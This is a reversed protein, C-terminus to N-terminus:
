FFDKRLQLGFYRDADRPVAIAVFGTGTAMASVYSKDLLNKGILAVRWGNDFNLGVSANLIGYAGQVTSPSQPLSYQESTQWFYNAYLELQPGIALPHRYDVSVNAKFAPAYPLRTGNVNCNAQAGSPCQFTGVRADTFALGGNLTLGTIPRAGLDLEIGKTSVTGANILRTVVQGAVTDFFNAQYNQYHVDYLALNATWRRDPTQAKVGIEYSNSEEPKLATTDRQQMNFFTNIAPGKYGHAYTAYLLVNETLDFQLGTRGSLGNDSTSGSSGFTPNVGPIAIPATSVRSFDYSIEDHTVRAGLIARLRPTFHFTGEGYASLNNTMTDFQATGKNATVSSCPTLGPAVSPLTSSTCTGVNRTYAEDTQGHLAYLGAVYDFFGGKPSTLRLEQSLQTFGLTGVDNVAPIQTYATPVWAEDTIQENLWQRYASISSLTYGRGINWDVQASLGWNTDLEAPGNRYNVDRNQLSPVVPALAATYLPNASGIVGAAFSDHSYLYDAIFTAKVDPTPTLVFKARFGKHNYGNIEEGNYVNKVNGDYRGYLATFSGTLLGPIITGSVGARVRQEGGQYIQTDIYGTPTKSPDQTVVNIVGSTSNKGFLTGQPGRLVEVHDVDLLDLTAQGPREYVVGDVVTSVAPEVGQSTSNTGIGRITIITDKGSLSPKFALEPVQTELSQINNSGSLELQKSTVVSVAVPVKQLPESRRTATVTVTALTADAAGNGALKAPKSVPASAAPSVPNLPSVPNAPEAQAHALTAVASLTAAVIM